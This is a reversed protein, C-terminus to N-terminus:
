GITYANTITQTISGGISDTATVRMSPMSGKTGTDPWIALYHNRATPVTAASTWTAGGDFSVEVKASTAPAQSGQGDYSEHGVTLNLVSVAHSTNTGDTNLHYNLGVHPPDPM